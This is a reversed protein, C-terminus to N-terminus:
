QAAETLGSPRRGNPRPGSRGRGDRGERESRVERARERMAAAAEENTVFCDGDRDMSAFQSHIVSQLEELNVAGSKDTDVDTFLHFLFSKDEFKAYRYEGSALEENEDVDLQAFLRARQLNVDACTVQGDGNQDWHDMFRARM